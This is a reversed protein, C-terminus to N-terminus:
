VVSKRDTMDPLGPQAEVVSITDGLSKLLEILDTWQTMALDHDVKDSVDMWPNISYEVDFYTPPCM